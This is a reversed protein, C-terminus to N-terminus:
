RYESQDIENEQVAIIIQENQKEPTTSAEPKTSDIFNAFNSLTTPQQSADSMPSVAQEVRIKDDKGRVKDTFIKPVFPSKKRKKPSSSLEYIIALRAPQVDPCPAVSQDLQIVDQGPEAVASHTVRIGGNHVGAMKQM